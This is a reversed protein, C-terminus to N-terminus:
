AQAKEIERWIQGMKEAEDTATKAEKVKQNAYELAKDYVWKFAATRNDFIHYSSKILREPLYYFGPMVVEPMEGIKTKLTVSKDTEKLVEIKCIAGRGYEFKAVYKEM